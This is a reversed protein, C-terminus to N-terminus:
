VHRLNTNLHFQFESAFQVNKEAKLDALAERETLGLLLRAQAVVPAPDFDVSGHDAVGCVKPVRDM